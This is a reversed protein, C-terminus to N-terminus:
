MKNNMSNRDKMAKGPTFEFFDCLIGRIVASRSTDCEKAIEDIEDILPAYDESLQLGIFNPYNM